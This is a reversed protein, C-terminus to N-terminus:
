DGHSEILHYHIEGGHKADGEIQSRYPYKQFVKQFEMFDDPHIVIEAIEKSHLKELQAAFDKEAM